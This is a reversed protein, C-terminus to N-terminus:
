VGPPTDDPTVTVKHHGVVRRLGWQTMVKQGIPEFTPHLHGNELVSYFLVM